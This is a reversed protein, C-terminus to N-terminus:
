PLGLSDAVLLYSPIAVEDFDITRKMCIDKRSIPLSNFAEFACKDWCIRTFDCDIKFKCLEMLQQVLGGFGNCVM